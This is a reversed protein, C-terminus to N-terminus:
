RPPPTAPRFVPGSVQEGAGLQISTIAGSAPRFLAVRPVDGVGRVPELRTLIILNGDASVSYARVHMGVPTIAQVVAATDTLSQRYLRKTPPSGGEDRLFYFSRGDPAFQPSDEARPSSTLRREGTGDMNVRWIDYNRTGGVAQRLSVFLLSSGDSSVDPQLNPNAGSTLQRRGSGDRNVVYLQTVGGKNSQYVIRDGAPRVFVPSGVTASDNTVRRAESGDANAVYLEMHTPREPPPAVYAIHTLDPGWAPELEISADSTVPWFRPVSDATMAYLDWRGGRQASAIMQGAVFVDLSVTSDWPTRATLRARGPSVGVVNGESYRAVSDNSTTWTLATAPGIPQRRDDLLQVSVPFREGAGLGLRTRSAALGGAVVSIRWSRRVLSDRSFPAAVELRTEGMRVGRLVRTTTDFRAVATDPLTWRLPADTVPTGDSGLARLSFTSTAAMALTVASDAPTAEFRVVPRHVTVNMRVTFYPSEGTIRAVGPEGATIVPSLPLVRVKSEDSSSFQFQGTLELTRDQAPVVIPVTDVAGPSLSVDVRRFRVTDGSVAVAVERMPVGPSGPAEARVTAQGVAGRARVFGVSDVEIFQEGGPQVSFIIPVRQANQGDQRVARYGLQRTEGKVLTLRPPTIVLGIPTGSGEPQFDLATRVPGGPGVPPQPGPRQGQQQIVPAPGVTLTATASRAAAGAGTRATITAQGPGVGTAYGEANVTAVRPNSTTYTFQATAVPNNARDYAIAVFVQQQGVVIAAEAPTIEVSAIRVRQASASDPSVSIAVVGALMAAWAPGVRFRVMTGRIFPTGGPRDLVATVM